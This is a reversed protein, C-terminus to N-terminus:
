LEKCCLARLTYAKRKSQWTECDTISYYFFIIFKLHCQVLRPQALLSNASPPGIFIWLSTDILPTCVARVSSVCLRLLKFVPPRSSAPSITIIRANKDGIDINRYRIPPVDYRNALIVYGNRDLFAHSFICSSRRNTIPWYFAETILSLMPILRDRKM